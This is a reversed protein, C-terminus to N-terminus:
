KFFGPRKKEIDIRIQFLRANDMNAMEKFCINNQVEPILTLGLDIAIVSGICILVFTADAAKNGLVGNATLVFALVFSVITLLACSLTNVCPWFLRPFNRNRPLGKYMFEFPHGDPLMHKFIYLDCLSSSYPNARNVNRVLALYSIITVFGSMVVGLWAM